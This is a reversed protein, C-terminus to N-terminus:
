DTASRLRIIKASFDVCRPLFSQKPWNIPCLPAPTHIPQDFTQFRNCFKSDKPLKHTTHNFRVRPKCRQRPEILHRDRKTMSEEIPTNERGLPEIYRNDADAVDRNATRALSRHSLHDHAMQALRELHCQDRAAIPALGFTIDLHLGINVIDLHAVLRLHDLHLKGIHGYHNALITHRADFAQALLVGLHLHHHHVITELMAIDLRRDIDNHDIIRSRDILILEQRRTLQAIQRRLQITSLIENNGLAALIHSRNLVSQELLIEKTIGVLAEVQRPDLATRRARYKGLIRGLRDLIARLNHRHRTHTIGNGEEFTQALVIAHDPLQDIIVM